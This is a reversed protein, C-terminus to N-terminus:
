RAHFRWFAKTETTLDSNRGRISQPLRAFRRPRLSRAHHAVSPASMWPLRLRLPSGFSLLGIVVLMQGIRQCLLM